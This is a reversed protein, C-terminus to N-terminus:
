FYPNFAVCIRSASINNKTVIHPKLLLAFVPALLHNSFFDLLESKGSCRIGIIVKIDLTGKVRKLTDLYETREILKM